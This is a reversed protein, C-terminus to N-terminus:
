AGSEDVIHSLPIHLRRAAADLGAKTLGLDVTAPTGPKNSAPYKYISAYNGKVRVLWYHYGHTNLTATGCGAVALAVASAAAASRLRVTM